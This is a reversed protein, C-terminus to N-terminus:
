KPNKDASTQTLPTVQADREERKLQLLLRSFLTPASTKVGRGSQAVLIDPKVTVEAMFRM